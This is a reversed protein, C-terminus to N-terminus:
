KGALSCTVGVREALLQRVPRNLSRSAGLDGHLTRRVCGVFYAAVNREEANANRISQISDSSLRADLQREDAGFGPAYRVMTASVLGGEVITIVVLLLRRLISSRM